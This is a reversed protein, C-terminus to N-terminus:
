LSQSLNGGQSVWHNCLEYFEFDQSYWIRLNEIAKESLGPTGEYNNHHSAIKDEALVVPDSIGMKLQLAMIDEGFNEQRIIVLPPRVEAFNGCTYFWDVQNQATHRISKIAACAKLGLEDKRFLAEALDNAHQFDRFAVADYKSWESYIRPQGKRKRSYFGSRFRAIPDRISFFYDEDMPLHRLFVDHVHKVIRRDPVSSNIFDIYRNIETGANKGIKLFHVRKRRGRAANRSWFERIRGLLHEDLTHQAM